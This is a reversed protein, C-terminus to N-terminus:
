IVGVGVIVLSVVSAVDDVVDTKALHAVCRRRVDSDGKILVVASVEVLIIVVASGEVSTLADFVLIIYEVNDERDGDDDTLSDRVSDAVGEVAALAVAGDVDTKRVVSIEVWEVDRRGTEVVVTVGTLSVVVARGTDGEAAALEVEADAVLAIDEDVEVMWEDDVERVINVLVM